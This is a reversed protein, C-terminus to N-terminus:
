LFRLLLLAERETRSSIFPIPGELFDARKSCKLLTSAILAASTLSNSSTSPIFVLAAFATQFYKWLFIFYYFLSFLKEINPFSNEQSSFNLFYTDDM